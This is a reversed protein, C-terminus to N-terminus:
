SSTVNLRYLSSTFYAAPFDSNGLAPLVYDYYDIRSRIRRSPLTITTTTPYYTVAFNAESSKGYSMNTNTPTVGSPLDELSPFYGFYDNLNEPSSFNPDVRAEAWLYESVNISSPLPDNNAGGEWHLVAHVDMDWTVRNGLSTAIAGYHYGLGDKGQNNDTWATPTGPPFDVVLLSEDVPTTTNHDYAVIEVRWAAQSPQAAFASVALALCPWLVFRNKLSALKM